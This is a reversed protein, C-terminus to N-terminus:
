VRVRCSARGLAASMVKFALPALPVIPTEPLPSVRVTVIELMVPLPVKPIEIAAPVALSVAPFRAGDARGLAVRVTFLVAGVILIEAGDALLVLPRATM